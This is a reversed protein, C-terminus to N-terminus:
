AGPAYDSVQFCAQGDNNGDSSTDFTVATPHGDKPDLTTAVAGGDDAATRALTLLGDLTPVQIEEEGQAIKGDIRDATVVQGDAVTVRYAGLEPGGACQRHLTFAYRAPPTWAPVTGVVASPTAAPAAAPPTSTCGAVLAVALMATGAPVAVKIRV